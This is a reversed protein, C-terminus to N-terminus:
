PKAALIQHGPTLSVANVVNEAKGAVFSQFGQNCVFQGPSFGFGLFAAFGFAVELPQAVLSQFVPRAFAADHGLRLVKGFAGIWAEDDGRQCALGNLRLLKVFFDVAGAAVRMM